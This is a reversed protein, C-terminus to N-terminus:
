IRLSVVIGTPLMSYAHEYIIEKETGTHINPLWIHKAIINIINNIIIIIMTYNGIYILYFFFKEIGLTM